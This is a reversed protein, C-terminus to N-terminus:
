AQKLHQDIHLKSSNVGTIGKHSFTSEDVLTTHGENGPYITSARYHRHPVLDGFKLYPKCVDHMCMM